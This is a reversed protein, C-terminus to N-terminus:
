GQGDRSTGTGVEALRRGSDRMQPHM